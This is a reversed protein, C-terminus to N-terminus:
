RREAARKLQELGSETSQQLQRQMRGRLLRVIRGDWSEASTVTTGGDADSELAYVHVADIGLTRGTWEIRRPAEVNRITSTIRAPGARWRFTSGPALHGDLKASAVDSNWTPWSDIESLFRWVDDIPADIKVSARAVAPAHEDIPM